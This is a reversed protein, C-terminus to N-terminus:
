AGLAQTEMTNSLNWDLVRRTAVDIITCLYVTGGPLRVYTVDM